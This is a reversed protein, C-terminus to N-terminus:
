CILLPAAQTDQKDQSDKRERRTRKKWSKRPFPQFV